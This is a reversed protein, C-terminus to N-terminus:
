LVPWSGVNGHDMDARTCGPKRLIAVYVSRHPSWYRNFDQKCKNAIYIAVKGYADRSITKAHANM